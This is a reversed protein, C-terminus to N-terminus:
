LIEISFSLTESEGSQLFRVGRKHEFVDDEDSCTSTGSWPELAVFPGDNASSWVGLYDFDPFSVLIGHGTKKHKLAVKRSKLADFVLADKYFLSHRVPIVAENELVSVRDANDMRQLNHVPLM